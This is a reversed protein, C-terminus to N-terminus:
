SVGAAELAKGRDGYGEGRVVVGDRLTWLHGIRIEFEAGSAHGRGTVRVFVLVRDDKGWCRETEARLGDLMAAREAFFRIVNDRGRI